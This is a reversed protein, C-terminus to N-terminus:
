SNHNRYKSTIIRNCVQIKTCIGNKMHNMNTVVAPIVTQKTKTRITITVNSLLTRLHLLQSLLYVQQKMKQQQIYHCCLVRIEWLLLFYACSMDQLSRSEISDSQQMVLFSDTLTKEHTCFHLAQKYLFSDDTYTARSEVASSHITDSKATYHICRIAAAKYRKAIKWDSLFIAVNRLAESYKYYNNTTIDQHNYYSCIRLYGISAIVIMYRIGVVNYFARLTDIDQLLISDHDYCYNKVHEWQSDYNSLTTNRSSLSIKKITSLDDYITYTEQLHLCTSRIEWMMPCIIQKTTSPTDLNCSQITYELDNVGFCLSICFAYMDRVLDNNMYKTTTMSTTSVDTDSAQFKQFFLLQLAAFKSDSQVTPDILFSAMIQIAEDTNYYGDIANNNNSSGFGGHSFLLVIISHYIRYDYILMIHYLPSIEQDILQLAADYFKQTTELNSSTNYITVCQPGQSITDHRNYLVHIADCDSDYEDDSNNHIDKKPESQNSNNNCEYINTVTTMLNTRIENWTPSKKTSTNGHVLSQQLLLLDYEENTDIDTTTTTSVLEVSSPCDTAKVKHNNTSQYKSIGQQVWTPFRFLNDELLEVLLM